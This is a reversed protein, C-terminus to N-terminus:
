IGIHLNQHAYEPERQKIVVKIVNFSYYLFKIKASVSQLITLKQKKHSVGLIALTLSTM